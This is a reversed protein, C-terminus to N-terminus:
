AAQRAVYLAVEAFVDLDAERTCPRLVGISSVAFERASESDNTESAMGLARGAQAFTMAVEDSAGGIIAGAQLAAGTLACRGEM